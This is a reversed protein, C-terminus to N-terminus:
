SEDPERADHKAPTPTGGAPYAEIVWRALGGVIGKAYAEIGAPTRLWAEREPLVLCTGEILVAPFWTTRLVVLDSQAVGRRVQRMASSVSDHLARALAEAFPEHYFTQTGDVLRPPQREDPADLHISVLVDANASEAVALRAALSLPRADRRVLVPRAGLRGLRRAAARAVELTVSDERLGTPGTSGAPPHGADLAVVLGALGRTDARPARVQLVLRGDTWGARWGAPRAGLRLAVDARGAPGHQRRVGRLFGNPQPPGLVASAHRAGFISWRMSTGELEVASPLPEALPVSLEVLGEREAVSMPGLPLPDPRPGALTDAEPALVWVRVGDSLRVRLADQTRAEMPLRVGLPLSLAFPGGPFWRGTAPRPQIASDLTDSPLRRVRVWGRASRPPVFIWDPSLARTLTVRGTVTRGDLGATLELAPAPGAPVPLWALFAGNPEVRVPRENVKLTARGTGVSGWVGISEGFALPAQTPFRVALNLPGDVSPIVPAARTCALALAAGSALVAASGSSLMDAFM